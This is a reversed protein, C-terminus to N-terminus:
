VESTNEDISKPPVIMAYQYQQPAVLYVPQDTGGLTNSKVFIDMEQMNQEEPSNLAAQDNPLELPQYRSGSRCYGRCTRKSYKRAVCLCLCFCCCCCACGGLVLLFLIVLTYVPAFLWKALMFQCESDFHHYNQKLCTENLGKPANTWNASLLEPCYKSLDNKCSYKV